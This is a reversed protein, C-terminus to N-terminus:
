SSLARCAGLISGDDIGREFLIATAWASQLRGAHVPRLDGATLRRARAASSYTSNGGAANGPPRPGSRRATGTQPPQNRYESQYVPSEVDLRHRRRRQEHEIIVPPKGRKTGFEVRRATEDRVVCRWIRSIVCVEIVDARNAIGECRCFELPAPVRPRVPAGTAGPTV